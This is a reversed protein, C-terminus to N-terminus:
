VVLSILRDLEEINGYTGLDQINASSDGYYQFKKVVDGKVCVYLGACGYNGGMQNKVFKSYCKMKDLYNWYSGDGNKVSKYFCMVGNKFGISELHEGVEKTIFSTEEPWYEQEQEM